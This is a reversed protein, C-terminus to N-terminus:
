GLVALWGGAVCQICCYRLFAQSCRVLGRKGGGIVSDSGGIHGRNMQNALEEM